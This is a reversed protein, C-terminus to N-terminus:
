GSFEMKSLTRQDRLLHAPPPISTTARFAGFRYSSLRPTAGQSRRREDVPLWGRDTDYCGQIRCGKGRRLRAPRHTGAGSDQVSIVAAEQQEIALQDDTLTLGHFVSGHRVPKLHLSVVEQAKKDKLRPLLEKQFRESWGFTAKLKRILNLAEYLIASAIFYFNWENESCYL